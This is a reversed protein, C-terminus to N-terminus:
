EYVVDLTYTMNYTTNATLASNVLIDGFVTVVINDPVATTTFTGVNSQISDVLSLTTTGDDAEGAATFTIESGASDGGTLTFRVAVSPQLGSITFDGMSQVGGPDICSGTVTGANDMACTAGVTLPILGFDTDAGPTITPDAFSTVTATGTASVAHAASHIGVAAALAVLTTTVHRLTIQRLTTQPKM